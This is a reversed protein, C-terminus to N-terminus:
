VDSSCVLFCGFLVVAMGTIQSMSPVMALIVANMLLLAVSNADVVATIAGTAADAKQYALNVSWMGLFSAASNLIPWALLLPTEIYAKFGGQELYVPFILFGIWGMFGFILLLRPRWSIDEEGTAILRWSIISAAYFTMSLFLWFFAMTEHDSPKAFANSMVIMGGIILACGAHQLLTLREGGWFYFFPGVILIDGCVLAQHPGSDSQDISFGINGCLMAAVIFGGTLMTMILPRWSSSVTDEWESQYTDHTAKLFLHINFAIIGDIFFVMGMHASPTGLYSASYSNIFNDVGFAICAMLALLYPSPQKVLDLQKDEESNSLWIIGASVGVLVVSMCVFVRTQTEASDLTSASAAPSESDTGFDFQVKPADSEGIDVQIRPEIMMSHRHTGTSASRKGHKHQSINMSMQLLSTEDQPISILRRCAEGLCDSHKAAAEPATDSSGSAFLGLAIAAFARLKVCPLM